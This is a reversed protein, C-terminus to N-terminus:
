DGNEVGMAATGSPPMVAPKRIESLFFPIRPNGSWTAADQMEFIERLAEKGGFLRTAADEDFRYNMDRDPGLERVLMVAVQPLMTAPETRSAEVIADRFKAWDDFPLGKMADARVTDLGWCVWLLVPAPAGRLNAALAAGNRHYTAVLKTRLYKKAQDSDAAPMLEHVDRSPAVFYHEIEAALTLNQPIALDLARHVHDLVIPSKLEGHEAARLWLRWIPVLGPPEHDPWGQASERSRLEVLPLLLRTAREASILHRFDYVAAETAPDSLLLLVAADDESALVRLVRQDRATADLEPLALYREWYDAHNHQRVGQPRQDAQGKKFLFDVAEGVLVRRRDDPVAKALANTWALSEDKRARDSTWGERLHHLHDEIASLAEPESERLISLVLLDDFDIEGALKDWSEICIRLAQKLARPTTCLGTM